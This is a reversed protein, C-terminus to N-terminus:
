GHRLQGSDIMKIRNACELLDTEPNQALTLVDDHRVTGTFHHDRPVIRDIGLAYDAPIEAGGTGAIVIARM